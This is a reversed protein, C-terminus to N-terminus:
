RAYVENWPVARRTVKPQWVKLVRVLEKADYETEMISYDSDTVWRMMLGEGIRKQIQYRM